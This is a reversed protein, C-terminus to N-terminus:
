MYVRLIRSTICLTSSDETRWISYGIPPLLLFLLSTYKRNITKQTISNNAIFTKETVVMTVQHWLLVIHHWLLLVMAFVLLFYVHSGKTNSDGLPYEIQPVSFQINIKSDAKFSDQCGFTWHLNNVVNFYYYWCCPMVLVVPNHYIQQCFIVHSNNMTESIYRCFCIIEICHYVVWRNNNYYVNPNEFRFGCNYIICYLICIILIYNFVNFCCKMSLYSYETWRLNMDLIAFICM